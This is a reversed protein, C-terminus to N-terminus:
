HSPKRRTDIIYQIKWGEDTKILQFSNTGTHSVKGNLYFTYPTWVSALSEEIHIAEFKIRERYIDTKPTALFAVFDDFNESQMKLKGDRTKMYTQLLPENTCASKLLSTDGSELGKFFQKITTKVAREEKKLNQASLGHTLMVLLMIRICYSLKM